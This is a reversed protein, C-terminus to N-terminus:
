LTLNNRALFVNEYSRLLRKKSKSMEAVKLCLINFLIIRKADLINMDKNMHM